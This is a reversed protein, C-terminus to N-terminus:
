ELANVITGNSLGRVIEQQHEMAVMDRDQVTSSINDSTERFQLLDRSVAHMWKHPLVHRM